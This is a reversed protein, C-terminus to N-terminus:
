LTLGLKRLLFQQARIRAKETDLRRIEQLQLYWDVAINIERNRKRDHEACYEDLVTLLDEDLKATIQKQMIM